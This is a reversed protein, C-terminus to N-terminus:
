LNYAPEFRFTEARAIRGMRDKQNKVRGLCLAATSCSAAGATRRCVANERFDPNSVQSVAAQWDTLM